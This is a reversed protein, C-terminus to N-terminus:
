LGAGAKFDKVVVVKLKGDVESLIAPLGSALMLDLLEQNGIREFRQLESQSSNPFRDFKPEKFATSAIGTYTRSTNTVPEEPTRNQAVNDKEPATVWVAIAVLAVLGAVLSGRRFASRKRHYAAMESQLQGLMEARRQNGRKSLRPESDNSNENITM